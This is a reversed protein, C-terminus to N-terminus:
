CIIWNMEQAIHTHTYHTGSSSLNLSNFCCCCYIKFYFIIFHFDVAICLLFCCGFYYYSSSLFFSCETKIFYCCCMFFNVYFVVGFALICWVSTFPWDETSLLQKKTYQAVCSFEKLVVSFLLVFVLNMWLLIWFFINGLHQVNSFLNTSTNSYRFMICIFTRKCIQNFCIFFFLVCILKFSFGIHKCQLYSTTRIWNEMALFFCM